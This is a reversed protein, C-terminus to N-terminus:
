GKRKEHASQKGKIYMAFIRFYYIIALHHMMTADDRLTTQKHQTFM